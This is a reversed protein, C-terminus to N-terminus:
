KGPAAQDRLISEVIYRTRALAMLPPTADSAEVVYRGNIVFTPVTRIDYLSMLSPVWAARAIVKGDNIAQSFAKDDVRRDHLWATLAKPDRDPLQATGDNELLDEQVSDLDGIQDLAFYVRAGWGWDQDIVAPAWTFHVRPGAQAVWTQVFPAVQQVWPSGYHFFGIVEVDGDPVSTRVPNPLERFDQNKVLPGMVAPLLSLNGPTAVTPSQAQQAQVPTGMVGSLSLALGLGLKSWGARM